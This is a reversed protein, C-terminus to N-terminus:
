LQLAAASSLAHGTLVSCTFRRKGGQFVLGAEPVSYALRRQLSRRKGPAGDLNLETRRQETRGRRELRGRSVCNTEGAGQDVRRAPLRPAGDAPQQDLGGPSRLSPDARGATRATPMGPAKRKRM